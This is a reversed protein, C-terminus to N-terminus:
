PNPSATWALSSVLDLFAKPPEAPSEGWFASIGVWVPGVEVQAALLHPFDGPKGPKWDPDKSWVMAGNAVFIWNLRAGSKALQSELVGRAVDESKRSKTGDPIVFATIM